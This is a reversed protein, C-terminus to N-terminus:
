VRKGYCWAVFDDRQDQDSEEARFIAHSVGLNDAVIEQHYHNGHLTLRSFYDFELAVSIDAMKRYIYYTLQGASDPDKVHRGSHIQGMLDINWYATLSPGDFGEGPQILSGTQTLHIPPLNSSPLKQAPLHLRPLRDTALAPAELTAMETPKTFKEPPPLITTEENGAEDGDETKILERWPVDITRPPIHKLPHTVIRLGAPAWSLLASIAKEASAGPCQAHYLEGQYVFIDGTEGQPNQIGIHSSNGSLCEVSIIDQLPEANQAPDVSTAVSSSAGDDGGTLQAIDEFTREWSDPDRPRGLVLCAGAQIAQLRVLDNPADTVVVFLSAPAQNKLLMLLQLGDFGPLMQDIAILHYRSPAVQLARVPDTEVDAQAAAEFKQTFRTRFEHAYDRRSSIILASALMCSTANTYPVFVNLKFDNAGGLISNGGHAAYALVLGHPDSKKQWVRSEILGSGRFDTADFSKRESDALGHDVQPV